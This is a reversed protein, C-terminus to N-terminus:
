PKTSHAIASILDGADQLSRDLADQDPDEPAFRAADCTDLFAALRECIEAAVGADVLADALQSRTMGVEAINLRNGVFGLVARALEAFFASAEGAQKLRTAQKLHRRALPHARRGRAWTIDTKLRQARRQQLALVGLLLLPVVIAAYFWSRQHLPIAPFVTWAGAPLLGAIDDVAYGTSLMSGAIVRDSTGVVSIAPLTRTITQYTVDAPDFYSFRIPDISFTGNTRPVMLYRFTKTGGALVGSVQSSTEVEPDYADFAGPLQVDPGELTSINGRGAIRIVLELPEGVEVESKSIQAEMTYQGVAERFASPMGSPLAWVEMTVPPSSREVVQVQRGLLLSRGFAAPTFVETVIRLPDVTLPGSRTPFVAVRKVVISSYRIGNEVSTRAIPRGEVDLEERWFGEADWSDALRSNQPQMGERFFLEYTITVQENVYPSRSSPVARIFIDQETVAVDPQVPNPFPDFVSRRRQPRAPRESQPVVTVTIAETTYDTGAISVTTAGLEASGESQALYQWSFSVSRTVNGNVFSVNTSRSPNNSALQLNTASPPSPVTVQALDANQVEITYTVAEETGITPTNVLAQVSPAQAWAAPCAAVLVLTFLLTPLRLM